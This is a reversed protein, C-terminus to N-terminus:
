RYFVTARFRGGSEGTNYVRFSDAKPVDSDQQFYGVCVDGIGGVPIGDKVAEVSVSLIETSGAAEVTIGKSGGYPSSVIMINPRDFLNNISGFISGSGTKMVANSADSVQVKSRVDKLVLEGVSEIGPQGKRVDLIQIAGGIVNEDSVVARIQKRVIIEDQTLVPSHPNTSDNIHSSFDKAYLKTDPNTNLVAKDGTLDLTALLISKESVVQLSKYSTVAFTEERVYM